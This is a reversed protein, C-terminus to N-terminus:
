EFRQVWSEFRKVKDPGYRKLNAIIEAISKEAPEANSNKSFFKDAYCILQEEISVPIMDRSPLPLNHHQIDAIRIGVGIHRECVLALEPHGKKKLLEGGLIGHCIYPHKGYCGFDPSNTLFIGIDHLMAATNIFELDPKLEPVRQAAALAKQAVQKGHEVLIKYTKSNSDYYQELLEIPNMIM